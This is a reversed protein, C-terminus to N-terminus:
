HSQVLKCFHFFLIFPFLFYRVHRTLGKGSYELISSKMVNGQTKQMYETLSLKIRGISILHILAHVAMRHFFPREMLVAGSPLKSGGSHVSWAAPWGASARPFAWSPVCTVGDAWLGVAVVSADSPRPFAHCWVPSSKQTRTHSRQAIYSHLSKVVKM